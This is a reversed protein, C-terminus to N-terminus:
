PLTQAMAAGRGHIDSSFPAVSPSARTSPCRALPVPVMCSLAFEPLGAGM